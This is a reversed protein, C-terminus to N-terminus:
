APKAERPRTLSSSIEGANVSIFRIVNCIAEIDDDPMTCGGPLLMVRGCVDETVPLTATMGSPENCYPLSRHGGPYFYRRALVNERSLIDVLEDRGLGFEGPSVEAVVYHYNSQENEAPRRLRLGPICQLLSFYTDHCRKNGAITADICALNALGMAAHVESMKANIGPMEVYDLGAFGFNRMKRLKDALAPDRTSVLGGEFSHLAKTAHLSFIEASGFGGLRTGRYTSGFAHAADFLLHIKADDCINQMREIDCADGWIHTAIVASTRDDILRAVDDCDANWDSRSVDCFRPRIGAFSLAHATSIFTYSPIIIEGTLGLARITLQLAATGNSTLVCHEVNLYDSLKQEFEGVLPGDNTFWRSNWVRDFM